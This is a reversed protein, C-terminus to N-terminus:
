LEEEQIEKNWKEVSVKVNIGSNDPSNISFTYIHNRLVGQWVGSNLAAVTTSTDPYGEKYPAFCLKVVAPNGDADKIDKATATIIRRSDANAADDKFSQEYTYFVYEKGQKGGIDKTAAKDSTMTQDLLNAASPVSPASASGALWADTSPWLYGKDPTKLSVSALINDPDEIIIKAMARTLVIDPTRRHESLYNAPVNILGAMPILHVGDDAPSWLNGASGVGPWSITRATANDTLAGLSFGTSVNSPVSFAAVVFASSYGNEPLQAALTPGWSAEYFKTVPDTSEVGGTYLSHKFSGTTTYTAIFLKEKVFAREAKVGESTNIAGGNYSPLVSMLMNLHGGEESPLVPVDSGACGAAILALPLTALINNHKKM